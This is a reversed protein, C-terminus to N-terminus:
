KRRARPHYVASHIESRHLGIDKLANDDLGMLRNVTWRRRQWTLLSHGARSVFHALTYWRGTIDDSAMNQEATFM